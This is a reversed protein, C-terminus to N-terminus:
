PTAALPKPMKPVFLHPPLNLLYQFIRHRSDAVCIYFQSGTNNSARTGDRTADLGDLRDTQVNDLALTLLRGRGESSKSDRM